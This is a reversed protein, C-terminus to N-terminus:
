ALEYQQMRARVADSILAPGISDSLALGAETLSLWDGQQSLLQHERLQDLLPIDAWADAGDFRAAYDSLSLGPRILLSQIVFRRKRETADLEIGYHAQTFWEEQRDCYHEIIDRTSQRGVAYETSYHLQRTYSRAGSGLGVMGDAQCCYIPAPKGPAHPLKFMRMSCQQYGAALLVAQGARYLEARNDAQGQQIVFQPYRGAHRQQIVGLGTLDRVYLPYLYIEEPMWRLAQRISAAFSAATQNPIGYILDLNLTAIGAQRIADLAQSVVTNLQPRILADTETRLFSQIGISVRDVGAQALLSLKEDTLTEPSVEVSAPTTAMDLQFHRQASELLQALQQASLYTPTGGGIAFRAIRHPGLAAAVQRMQRQMADVYRMPLSANPKALTFLNCFGCRMECFPIHLYLFLADRKEEAWLPALPLPTSFPRYATKHPYSYSYAQYPTALWPMTM